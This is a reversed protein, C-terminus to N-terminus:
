NIDKHKRRDTVSIKYLWSWVADRQLLDIAEQGILELTRMLLRYLLVEKATM